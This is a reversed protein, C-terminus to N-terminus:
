ALAPGTIQIGIIRTDIMPMAVVGAPSDSRFSIM